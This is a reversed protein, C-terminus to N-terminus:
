ALNCEVVPRQSLLVFGQKAEPPEVVETGIGHETSGDPRCMRLWWVGGETPFVSPYRRRAQMNRVVAAVPVSNM